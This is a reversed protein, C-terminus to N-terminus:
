RGVEALRYGVGRVTEIEVGLAKTVRRVMSVHVKVTSASMSRYVDGFIALGLDDCSVTAPYRGALVDLVRIFTARVPRTGARTTITSETLSVALPCATSM